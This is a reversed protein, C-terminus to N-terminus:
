RFERDAVLQEIRFVAQARNTVDLKRFVNFLHNRVTSTSVALIRGIEANTKGTSVWRMVELERASLGLHELKRATSEDFGGNGTEARPRKFAPYQDQAPLPAVRRFATDLFPVLIEMSDVAVPGHAECGSLVVFLSDHPGRQDKIGHALASRINALSPPRFEADEIPPDAVAGTAFPTAFACYGIERWAEFLGRLLAGWHNRGVDTACAGHPTSVVDFRFQGAEFDGWAAILIEHPLVSQVEGRLWHFLDHHTRLVLSGKILRLIRNTEEM